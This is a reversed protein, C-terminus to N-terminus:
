FVFNCEIHNEPEIMNTCEIKQGLIRRINQNSM